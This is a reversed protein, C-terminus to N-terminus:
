YYKMKILDFCEILNNKLDENSFQINWTENLAESLSEFFLRDEFINLSSSKVNFFPITKQKCFQIIYNVKIEKKYEEFVKIVRINAEHSVKSYLYKLLNLDKNFQKIEIDFNNYIYILSDLSDVENQLYFYLRLYKDEHDVQNVELMKSSILNELSKPIKSFKYPQNDLKFFGIRKLGGFLDDHFLAGKRLVIENDIILRLFEPSIGNLISIIRADLFNNM